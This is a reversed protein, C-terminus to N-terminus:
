DEGRAFATVTEALEHARELAVNHGADLEVLRADALSEIMRQAVDASLVNSRTGRVVLAPCRIARLVDWLDDHRAGSM